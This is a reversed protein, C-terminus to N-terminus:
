KQKYIPVTSCPEGYMISKVVPRLIRTIEAFAYSGIAEDGCGKVVVRQGEYESPDFAAIKKLVLHKKMEETTGNYIEKAVPQLYTVPLMFAWLPVIADASCIICVNRDKYAMWDLNKLAERYEKEKLMLGMYLYDKLDFLAPEDAPLFAELDLQVLGSGAVKNIITESM